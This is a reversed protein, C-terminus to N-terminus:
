FDWLDSLDGWMGPGNSTRWVRDSASTTVLAQQAELSHKIKKVVVDLM